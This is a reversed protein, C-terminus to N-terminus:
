TAAPQRPHAFVWSMTEPRFECMALWRDLNDRNQLVEYQNPDRPGEPIVEIDHSETLLDVLDKAVPRGIFDHCEILFHAHNGATRVQPTILETEYGECDCIVLSRPHESLLAALGAADVAGRCEIKDAVGNREANKRTADLAAPDIDVAIVKPTDLIMAAGVTYYGEASGINIVADFSQGRLADLRSSVEQEYCGLLKPTIAGDGWSVQTDILMGKFPGGSVTSGTATIVDREILPLRESVAVRLIDAVFKQSKPDSKADKGTYKVWNRFLRRAVTLATRSLM